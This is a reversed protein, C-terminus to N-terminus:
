FYEALFVLISYERLESVGYTIVSYNGGVLKTTGLLRGNKSVFDM